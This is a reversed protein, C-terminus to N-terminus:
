GECDGRVRGGRRLEQSQQTRVWRTLKGRGWREEKTADGRMMERKGEEGIM